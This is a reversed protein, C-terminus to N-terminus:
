SISCRSFFQTRLRQDAFFNTCRQHTGLRSIGIGRLAQHACAAFGALGLLRRMLQLHFHQAQGLLSFLRTCAGGLNLGIHSFYLRRQIIQLLPGGGCFRAKFLQVHLQSVALFQM